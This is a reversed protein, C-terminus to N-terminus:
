SAVPMQDRQQFRAVSSEFFYVRGARHFAPGLGERGGTRAYRVMYRRVTRDSVALLQAAQPLSVQKEPQKMPLFFHRRGIREDHLVAQVAQWKWLPM